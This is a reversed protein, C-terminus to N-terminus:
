RTGRHGHRDSTAACRVRCRRASRALSFMGPGGAGFRSVVADFTEAASRHRAADGAVFEVNAAGAADFLLGTFPALQGDYRDAETVWHQAEDGNWDDATERKSM